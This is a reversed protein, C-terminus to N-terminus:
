GVGGACKKNPRFTSGTIDQCDSQTTVKCRNQGSDDVWYCAGVPDEATSATEVLGAAALVLEQARAPAKQRSKKKSAAKKRQSPSSRKMKTKTKTKRQRKKRM